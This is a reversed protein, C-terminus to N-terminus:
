LQDGCAEPLDIPLVGDTDPMLLQDFRVDIYNAPELHDPDWHVEQYGNSIAYGSAVIGRPETGLRILFIRDGNQIRKTVGTSWTGDFFGNSKLDLIDEEMSEWDWRKPNWTLLYTDM